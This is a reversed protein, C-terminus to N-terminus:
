EFMKKLLVEHSGGGLKLTESRVHAAGDLPGRRGGGAGGVLHAEDCRLQDSGGVRDVGAGDAGERTALLAFVSLDDSM